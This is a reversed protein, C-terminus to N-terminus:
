RPEKRFIETLRGVATTADRVGKHWGEENAAEIIPQYHEEIAEMVKATMAAEWDSLRADIMVKATEDAGLGATGTLVRMVQHRNLKTIEASVRERLADRAETM